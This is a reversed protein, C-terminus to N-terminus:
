EENIYTGISLDDYHIINNKELEKLAKSMRRKLFEGKTTKFETFRPLLESTSIDERKMSFMSNDKIFSFLGDSFISLSEIEDVNESIFYSCNYPFVNKFDNIHVTFTNNQQIYLNHKYKDITYMMYYPANNSYEIRTLVTTGNKLNVVYGGDGYFYVYIKGNWLFSLILTATLQESKLGMMTAIHHSTYVVNDKIEDYTYPEEESGFPKHNTIFQKTMHCLIRAGIESDKASSCGDSLIIYPFPKEGSIIYDQCDTHQKGVKLFTDLNIM